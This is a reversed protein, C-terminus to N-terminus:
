IQSGEWEVKIISADPMKEQLKKVAEINNNAEVIEAGRIGFPLEYSIRYQM